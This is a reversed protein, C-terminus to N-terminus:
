RSTLIEVRDHCVRIGSSDSGKRGSVRVTFLHEGPALDGSEWLLRAGQPWRSYTYQDIEVEPGGDLSVLAIGHNNEKSAASAADTTTRRDGAHTARCQTRDVYHM